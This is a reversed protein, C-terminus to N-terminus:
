SKCCKAVQKVKSTENPLTLNACCGCRGTETGCCIEEEDSSFCSACPQRKRACPCGEQCKCRGPTQPGSDMLAAENSKAQSGLKLASVNRVKLQRPVPYPGTSSGFAELLADRAYHLAYDAPSSGDSDRAEQWANDTSPCEVLLKLIMKSAMAVDKCMVALHLPTIGCPGAIDCMWPKGARLAWGLVLDLVELNQSQVACHLLGMDDREGLSAIRHLTAQFFLHNTGDLFSMQNVLNSPDSSRCVTELAKAIEGHMLDLVESAIAPLGAVLAEYILRSAIKEVFAFSTKEPDATWDFIIGLKRVWADAVEPARSALSALENYISISHVVLVKGGSPSICLQKAADIHLLGVRVNAPLMIAVSQLGLSTVRHNMPSTREVERAPKADNEALSLSALKSVCCGCCRSEWGIPTGEKTATRPKCCASVSASCKCDLCSARVIPLYSGHLRCLIECDNQMLNYGQVVVKSPAAQSALLVPPHVRSIVPVVHAVNELKPDLNWAQKLVGRDVLAMEAGAQIVFRKQHWFSEKRALVKSVITAISDVTTPLRVSVASNENKSVNEDRQIDPVEGENNTMGVIAEVLLHLCGPRLYGEMGAVRGSFWSTMHDRLDPPLESPTCGFLKVSITSLVANPTLPPKNEPLSGGSTQMLFEATRIAPSRGTDRFSPEPITETIPTPDPVPVADVAAFQTSLWASLDEVLSDTESDQLGKRADKVATGELSSPRLFQDFNPLEDDLITPGPFTAIVGNSVVEIQDRGSLKDTKQLSDGNASAYGDGQSLYSDQFHASNQNKSKPRNQSSPAAAQRRRRRANHKELQARCSHKNHDFESLGHPHGCRQCFRMEVGQKLFVDAKIHLDCIKNRVHYYTLSSMDRCCDDAQCFVTANPLACVKKEAASKINSFSSAKCHMEKANGVAQKKVARFSKPDWEYDELQWSEADASSQGLGAFYDHGPSSKM